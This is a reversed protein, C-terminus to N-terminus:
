AAGEGRLAPSGVVLQSALHRVECAAVVRLRHGELPRAPLLDVHLVAVTGGPSRNSRPVGDLCQSAECRPLLPDRAPVLLLVGGSPLDPMGMSRASCSISFRHHSKASRPTRAM